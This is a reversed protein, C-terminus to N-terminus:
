RRLIPPPLYKNRAVDSKPVVGYVRLMVNFARDSVPLWNAQAVGAPQTQSIYISVSGDANAVLGPTYSAVVYKDIANPIPQIADPTYGTLSWFRSAAPTGGPPFTLVYGNPASGDLPAGTGDVFVHYYAATEITNCFQCFETISARDLVASKWEGINTFHIWNNADTHNLYNSIIAYHASRAAVAFQARVQPGLNSGDGFLANFDDSLRREQPSLPPTSSTDAVAVQIQRLFAIPDTRIMTDAIMKFPIAFEEVPKVKTEVGNIALAARFATAEATMDIGNSFRDVRFILMMFDLPLEATIPNPGCSHTNPGALVYTTNPLAVGAAKSPIPSPYVNGYTDLLLVSYGAVTEPVFVGVTCGIVDIPSSAYLTDDNIAVVAQYLPSIKEPGVLENKPAIQFQAHTFWLPYFTTLYNQTTAVIDQGGHNPKPAAIGHGALMFTAALVLAVVTGLRRRTQNTMRDNQM